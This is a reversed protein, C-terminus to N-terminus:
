SPPGKPLWDYGQRALDNTIITRYRDTILDANQPPFADVTKCHICGLLVITTHAVSDAEDIECHDLKHLLTWVHRPCENM